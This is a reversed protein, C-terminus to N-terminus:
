YKIGTAKEVEQWVDWTKDAWHHYVHVFYPKIEEDNDSLLFRLGGTHKIGKHGYDAILNYRQSLTPHQQLGLQWVTAILTGQDRTKWEPLTFIRLTHQHWKELFLHSTDNFLFVGGNWHQWNNDTVDVDFTKLIQQTLHTCRCDFVNKGERTWTIRDPARFPSKSEIVDVVAPVHREYLVPAGNKDIWVHNIKDLFTDEDLKFMKRSLNFRLSLWWYALKNKKREELQLLLRNKKDINEPERIIDKHESFLQKLESQWQEFQKQCNCNIASPSFQSLVCHDPAFTVPAIFGAFISDVGQRVAVVDTDLYCYNNGSPLFKHLGTKLYISAQHHNYGSPTKVDIVNSHTVPIENRSLDTVVIIGNQSYKSLAQLSYHLTDIHERAGCVVFVFVNKSM